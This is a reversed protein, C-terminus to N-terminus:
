YRRRRRRLASAALVALSATVIMMGLGERAAEDEWWVGPHWFDEAGPWLYATLTLALALCALLPIRVSWRALSTPRLAALGAFLAPVGYVVMWAQGDPDDYQLAAFLGLLLALLGHFIRM